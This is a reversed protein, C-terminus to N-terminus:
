YSISWSRLWDSRVLKLADNVHVHLALIYGVEWNKVPVKKVLCTYFTNDMMKRTCISKPATSTKAAM